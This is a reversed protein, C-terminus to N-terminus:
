RRPGPQLDLQGCDNGGRRRARDLPQHDQVLVVVDHGNDALADAILAGTIGAGVVAVDCALDAELKPFAYMLGNKVAWYPYGSKLDVPLDELQKGARM